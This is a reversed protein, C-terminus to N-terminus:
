PGRSHRAESELVPDHHGTPREENVGRALVYLERDLHVAGGPVPGALLPLSVDVAVRHQCRHAPCVSRNLKARSVPEGSPQRCSM